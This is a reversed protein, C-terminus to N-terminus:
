HALQAVGIDKDIAVVDSMDPVDGLIFCGPGVKNTFKQRQLREFPWVWVDSLPDVYFRDQRSGLCNEELMVLSRYSTELEHACSIPDKRKKSQNLKPKNSKEQLTQEAENKKKFVNFKQALIWFIGITLIEM